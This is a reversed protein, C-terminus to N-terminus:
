YTEQAIYVSRALPPTSNVPRDLKANEVSSLLNDNFYSEASLFEDEPFSTYCNYGDCSANTCSTTPCTKPAFISDELHDYILQHSVPSTNEQPPSSSTNNSNAIPHTRNGSSGLNPLSSDNEQSAVEQEKGDSQNPSSVGEMDLDEDQLAQFPPKPSATESV